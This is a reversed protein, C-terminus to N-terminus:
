YLAYNLLLGVFLVLGVWQNNLFAKFSLWRDRDKTLWQQYLFLLGAVVISAFWPWHLGAQLGVICLLLLTMLQLGGIIHIDSDGFLIATSKVGIRLDDERDCMAYQTDYAITWVLKAAYLVWAVLPVAEMEAAFAMPIAWAFAAGLFFQPMYTFRKSFPYLTALFLAGFAYWFTLWNLTLLLLFSLFILAGFLMLADKSRLAGTALPRDKTREVSGDIHRDAFDNIVCGAARMSFVGLTFVVVIGFSPSGDGAIWVAWFTPWLLLMTGIPRDLRMLQIWPWLAPYRKEVFQLM